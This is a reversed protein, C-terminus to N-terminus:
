PITAVVQNSYASKVGSATVATVTYYYVTGPQVTSDSFTTGSVSSAIQTYPGGAVTSRYVNYGVVGSSTSASWTLNASSGSGINTGSGTLPIAVSGANSASTTIAVTGTFNKTNKPSFQIALTATQGAPISLGTSIGSAGFGTGNTSITQVTVATNGTNALSVTSTATGNVPVSGFAISTPTVTLLNTAAVASGVLPIAVSSSAGTVSLILMGGVTGTSTPSFNVNFTSTGGAQLTLPANLGSVGFGAGQTSISSILASATGTNNLQITQTNSTGVPVNNFVASGPTASVNGTAATGGSSSAAAKFAALGAAWLDSAGLSASASVAGASTQVQDETILKSNPQSPVSEEIRFGSGAIYSEPDGTMVVGLVLDGSAKTLATGSNPLSSSGQATIAVDLSGSVAIGSYELIAFRLNLASAQTVTVANTGGVINEAYFVAITDGDASQNTQLAKKYTNGNSDSVTLSENLAGSRICVGIWNGSVNNSAFGLTASSKAGADIGARQVLSIIAPTAVGASTTLTRTTPPVASASALKTGFNPNGLSESAAIALLVSAFCLIKAWQNVCKLRPHSVGKAVVPFDNQVPGELRM